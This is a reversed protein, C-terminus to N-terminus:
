AALKLQGHKLAHADVGMDNLLHGELPCHQSAFPHPLARTVFQKAIPDFTLQQATGRFDFFNKMKTDENNITLLDRPQSKFDQPTESNPGFDESAETRLIFNRRFGSSISTSLGAV